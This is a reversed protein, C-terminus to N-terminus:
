TSLIFCRDLRIFFSPNGSSALPPPPPFALSLACTAFNLYTPLQHTSRATVQLHIRAERKILRVKRSAVHRHACARVTCSERVVVLWACLNLTRFAPAHLYSQPCWMGVCRGGASAKIPASLSSLAVESRIGGM